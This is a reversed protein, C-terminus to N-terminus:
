PATNRAPLKTVTVIFMDDIEAVRALDLDICFQQLDLVNWLAIFVKYPDEKKYLGSFSWGGRYLTQSILDKTAQHPTQGDKSYTEKRQASLYEVYEVLDFCDHRPSKYITGYVHPPIWGRLEDCDKLELPLENNLLPHDSKKVRSHLSKKWLYEQRECLDCYWGLSDCPKRNGKSDLHNGLVIPDDCFEMSTKRSADEVIAIARSFTDSCVSDWVEGHNYLTIDMIGETKYQTWAAMHDRWWRVFIANRNIELYSMMWARLVPEHARLFSALERFLGLVRKVNHHYPSRSNEFANIEKIFTEWKEVITVITSFNMDLARM